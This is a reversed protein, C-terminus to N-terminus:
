GAESDRKLRVRDGKRNRGRTSDEIGENWVMDEAEIDGAHGGDWLRGKLRAKWCM